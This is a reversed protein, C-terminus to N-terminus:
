AVDITAEQQRTGAGTDVPVTVMFAAQNAKLHAIVGQAIALALRRRGLPDEDPHVPVLVALADDIARSMSNPELTGDARLAGAYLKVTASM